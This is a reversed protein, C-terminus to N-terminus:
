ARAHSVLSAIGPARPAGDLPPTAAPGTATDLGDAAAAEPRENAPGEGTPDQDQM